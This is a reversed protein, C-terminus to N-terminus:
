HKLSVFHSRFLLNLPSCSNYIKSGLGGDWKSVSQQAEEFSSLRWEKFHPPKVSDKVWQDGRKDEDRASRLSVFGSVYKLFHPVSYQGHKM